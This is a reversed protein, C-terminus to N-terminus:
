IDQNGNKDKKHENLNNQHEETEHFTDGGNIIGLILLIAKSVIESKSIHLKAKLDDLRKVTDDDVNVAIQPRGTKKGMAYPTQLVTFFNPPIRAPEKIIVEAEVDIISEDDNEENNDVVSEIEKATPQDKGSHEQAQKWTQVPDTSRKLARVQSETKPLVSGNPESKQMAEVTKAASILRNSHQPTIGWRKHCYEAYTGYSSKYLKKTKILWLAQGAKAYGEIGAKIIKELQRLSLTNQTLMNTKM